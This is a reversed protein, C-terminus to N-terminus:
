INGNQHQCHLQLSTCTFVTFVDHRNYIPAHEMIVTYSLFKAYFKNQCNPLNCFDVLNFAVLNEIKNGLAHLYLLTRWYLIQWDGLFSQNALNFQQWINM